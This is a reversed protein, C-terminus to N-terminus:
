KATEETVAPEIFLPSKEALKRFKTLYYDAVTTIYM